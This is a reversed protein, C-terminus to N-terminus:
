PSVTSLMESQISEPRGSDAVAPVAVDAAVGIVDLM